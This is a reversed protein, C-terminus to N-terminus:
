LSIFSVFTSVKVPDVNPTLQWNIEHLRMVIEDFTPRAKPDVSWCRGIMEKVTENMSVPLEPREGTIVKKMLPGLAITPPFV